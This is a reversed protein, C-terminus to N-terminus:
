EVVTQTLADRLEYRQAKPKFILRWADGAQELSLEIHSYSNDGTQEEFAKRYRYLAMRTNFLAAKTPAQIYVMGGHEVARDWYSGLESHAALDYSAAKFNGM